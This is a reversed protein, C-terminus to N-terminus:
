EEEYQNSQDASTHQRRRRRDSRILLAGPVTLASLLVFGTLVGSTLDEPHQVATNALGVVYGLGVIMLLIGVVLQTTASFAGIEFGSPQFHRRMGYLIFLPAVWTAMVVVWVNRGFSDFTDRTSCLEPDLEGTTGDDFAVVSCANFTEYEASSLGNWVAWVLLALVVLTLIVLLAGAWPRRAVLAGMWLGIPALGLVVVALVGALRSQVSLSNGPIFFAVPVAAVALVVWLWTRQYWHLRIDLSSEDSNTM